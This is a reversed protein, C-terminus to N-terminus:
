KRTDWAIIGVIFFIIWWVETSPDSWQGILKSNITYFFHFPLFGNWWEKSVKIPNRKEFCIQLESLRSQVRNKKSIFGRIKAGNKKIPDKENLFHKIASAIATEIERIKDDANLVCGQDNLLLYSEDILYNALDLYYNYFPLDRNIKLIAIVLM